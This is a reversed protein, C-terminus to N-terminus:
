GAPRHECKHTRRRAHQTKRCDDKFGVPDRVRLEFPEPAGLLLVQFLGQILLVNPSNVVGEDDGVSVVQTLVVRAMNTPFRDSNRHFWTLEM